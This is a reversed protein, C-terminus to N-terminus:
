DVISLLFLFFSGNFMRTDWSSPALKVGFVIYLTMISSYTETCTTKEWSIFTCMKRQSQFDVSVYVRGPWAKKAVMEM